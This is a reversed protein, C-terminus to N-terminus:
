IPIDAVEMGFRMIRCCFYSRCCSAAFNLPPTLKLIDKLFFLYLIMFFSNSQSKIFFFTLSFEGDRQINNNYFM